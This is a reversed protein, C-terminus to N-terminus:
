INTQGIEDGFTVLINPKDSANTAQQAYASGSLLLLRLAAPRGSFRM